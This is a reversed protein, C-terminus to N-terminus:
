NSKRYDNVQENAKTREEIWDTLIEVQWSALCITENSKTQKLRKLLIKRQEAVWEENDM